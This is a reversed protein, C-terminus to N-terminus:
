KECECQCSEFVKWFSKWSVKPCSWNGTATGNKEQCALQCKKISDKYNKIGGSVKVMFKEHEQGHETGYSANLVLLITGTLLGFCVKKFEM